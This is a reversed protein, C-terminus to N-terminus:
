PVPSNPAPAPMRTIQPIIDLMPTKSIKLLNAHKKILSKNKSFVYFLYYM